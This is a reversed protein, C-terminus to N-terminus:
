ARCRAARRARRRHVGPLRARNEHVALRLRDPRRDPGAAGLRAARRDRVRADQLGRRLVPAHQHERVGLGAARGLGRHLAPQRRRLQGQRRHDARRVRRHRPGEAGRPRAPDARLRASRRGRRAGCRRERPQRDVCVRAHRLGARSCARARDVRRPGQVLADPQRDREQHLARRPRPAGGPPGGQGAADLGDAARQARPRALPLFDAYRWITTRGPRSGASSRPPIVTPCRTASRSRASAGSASSARRSRTPRDSMGQVEPCRGANTNTRRGPTATSTRNPLHVPSVGVADGLSIENSGSPIAM